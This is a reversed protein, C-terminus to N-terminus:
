LELLKRECTPCSSHHDCECRIVSVVNNLPKNALMTPFHAPNTLTFVRGAYRDLLEEVGKIEDHTLFLIPQSGEKVINALVSQKVYGSMMGLPTDIINPAEVESVKTLALIFSLTIARRSAGNLDQDPNLLHDNPGYVVIDFEETLEARHILSRDNSEGQGIMGLFIRNMETSVKKLEDKKLREVILSFVERVEKTLDWTLASNNTKGLKARLRSLSYEADTKRAQIDEIQSERKASKSLEIRYSEELKSKHQTLEQLQSDDLAKIETEIDRLDDETKSITNSCHQLEEFQSSFNDIWSQSASSSDISRIAYFLSSAAEQIFDSQRSNEISKQIEERRSIGKSTVGDLESGCFCNTRELLEELIPINVKPLQKSKNLGNLKAQANSLQKSLLAKTALEGYALQALRKYCVKENKQQDEIIKQAKNKREVLSAKNGLKLLEERRADVQRLQDSLDKIQERSSALEETWEEIDDDYSAIKDNIDEIEKAYDTNDIEQSFRNAVLGLHKITSDLITLGLLSQIASEVRQRKQGQSAAAEIFSMASDGDTFYVNRLSEPLTAEIISKVLADSVREVGNAGLKWLKHNEHDRYQGNTLESYEHCSRELKYKSKTVSSGGRQTSEVLEVEFDIEVSIEVKTLSGKEDSPFLSYHGRKPLAKSGYLCWLLANLCTTKGTENAARIVTLKKEHDTSFDLELSKLLRFNSIKASILKM